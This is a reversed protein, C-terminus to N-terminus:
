ECFAFYLAIKVGYYNKVDDLPQRWRCKFLSPSWSNRLKLLSSKEHLPFFKVVHEKEIEDDMKLAMGGLRQTCESMYKLLRLRVFPYFPHRFGEPRWYISEPVADIRMISADDHKVNAGNREVDEGDDPYEYRNFEYRAYIYQFPYISSVSGLLEHDPGPIKLPKIDILKIIILMIKAYM